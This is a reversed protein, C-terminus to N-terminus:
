FRGLPEVPTTDKSKTGERKSARAKSSSRRSQAPHDNAASGQAESQVLTEEDVAAINTEQFSGDIADLVKHNERDKLRQMLLLEEGELSEIFEAIKRATLNFQRSHLGRRRRLEDSALMIERESRGQFTLHHESHCTVWTGQVFAYATGMDFPDIRVAVETQEVSPARFAESWYYLNNVKIGRGASVKATGKRTTPLTFMKFEDLNGILRHLRNGSRQTWLAFAEKPTMDLAPHDINDYVEYAFERFRHYFRALTWIARHKPNVSGTVQRVNKMLQTNGELNHIFRTNTTGFLRECVSGYRSEAPPRTMKTVEYRALLTEFYISEFEAGGDVIITRPLRGFRRVCERMVMM